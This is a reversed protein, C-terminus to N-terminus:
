LVYIVWYRLFYLCYSPLFISGNTSFLMVFIIRSFVYAFHPPSVVGVGMGLFLILCIKPDVAQFRICNTKITYGSQFTGFYILVLTSLM